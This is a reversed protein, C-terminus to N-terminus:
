QVKLFVRRNMLMSGRRANFAHACEAQTAFLVKAEGAPQGRENYRRKVHDPTLNYMSGFFELIDESNAKYPINELLIVRGEISMNNGGNSQGNDYRPPYRGPGNMRDMMRDDGNHGFRQQQQQQDPGDNYNMQPSGYNNNDARQGNMQQRNMDMTPANPDILQKAESRGILEITVKHEGINVSELKRAKRAQEPTSFQCVGDGTHRNQANVCLNVEDPHIGIGNLYEEVDWEGMQVPLNRMLICDMDPGGNQEQRALLRPDARRRPDRSTYGGGGSIGNSNANNPSNAGTDQDSDLVRNRPDAKPISGTMMMPPYQSGNLPLTMTPQALLSAPPQILNQPMMPPHMISPAVTIQQM